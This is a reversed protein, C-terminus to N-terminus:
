YNLTSFLSQFAICGWLIGFNLVIFHEIFFGTPLNMEYRKPDTDEMKKLFLM